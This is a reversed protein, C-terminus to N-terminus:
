TKLYSFEKELEKIHSFTIRYMKTESTSNKELERLLLKCQKLLELRICTENNLM